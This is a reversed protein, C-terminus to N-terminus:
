GLLSRIADQLAPDRSTQELRKLLKAWIPRWTVLPIRPPYHFKLNESALAPFSSFSELEGAIHLNVMTRLCKECCGCNGGGSPSELCVRLHARAAPNGAIFRLKEYRDNDDADYVIEVDETSWLPDLHPHSGWPTGADGITMSSPVYMRGYTGALVSAVSGLAAGHVPGWSVFGPTVDHLNTVVKVLPKGLAGAASEVFESAAQLEEAQERMVDFGHVYVLADIEDIHRLATYFSDVGATFFAATADARPEFASRPEAEIRVTRLRQRNTVGPWGSESWGHLMQQAQDLNSLLKPSVPAESRLFEEKRMAPVLFAILFADEPTPCIPTTSRYWVELSGRTSEVVATVKNGSSVPTRILM